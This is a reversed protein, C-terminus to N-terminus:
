PAHDTHRRTMRIFLWHLPASQTVVRHEYKHQKSWTVLSFNVSSTNRIVSVKEKFWVRCWWSHTRMICHSKRRINPRSSSKGKLWGWSCCCLEESGAPGLETVCDGGGPPNLSPNHSVVLGKLTPCFDCWAGTLWRHTEFDFVSGFFAVVTYTATENHTRREWRGM